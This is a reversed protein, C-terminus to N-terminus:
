ATAALPQTRDCGLTRLLQIHLLWMWRNVPRCDCSRPKNLGPQRHFRRPLHLDSAIARSSTPLRELRRRRRQKPPTCNKTHTAPPKPARISPFPPSSASPPPLSISGRLDWCHVLPDRVLAWLCGFFTSFVCIALIYPLRLLLVSCSLLTDCFRITFVLTARVALQPHRTHPPTRLRFHSPFSPLPIPFPFSIHAAIALGKQLASPQQATLHTWAWFALVLFAPWPSVKKSDAASRDSFPHWHPQSSWNTQARCRQLGALPQKPAGSAGSDSKSARTQRVSQM